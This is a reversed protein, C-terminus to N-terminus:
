HFILRQWVPAFSKSSFKQRYSIYVGDLIKLLASILLLKQQYLHLAWTSKTGGDRRLGGVIKRGRQRDIAQMM